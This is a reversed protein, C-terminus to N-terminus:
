APGTVGVGIILVLVFGSPIIASSIRNARLAQNPDSLTMSTEQYLICRFGRMHLLPKPYNINIRINARPTRRIRASLRSKAAIRRAQLPAGVSHYNPPFVFRFGKPIRLRRRAPSPGSFCLWRGPALSAAQPPQPFFCVSSKRDAAAQGAFSLRPFFDDIVSRRNAWSPSFPRACRVGPDARLCAPVCQNWSPSPRRPV